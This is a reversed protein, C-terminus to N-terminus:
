FSSERIVDILSRERQGKYVSWPLLVGFVLLIPFVLLMPWIVFKYKLFWLGGVLARLATLSFISGIVFSATITFLAYYIGELVLMKVIQKKTMGIAEMMAFEKQRTVMGTLISNIFNLIGIVAIVLTMLGGVLVILGIMGKYDDLWLEKSEYNMLPEVTETYDKLFQCFEKEKDDEVDCAYSMLFSDSVWEKFINASTYYAFRAGMRDTLGYYNEKIVSLVEVKKKTGDPLVLTLKDGAHHMVEKEYVFDNDDVRTSSLIYGGTALKKRIVDIDDEGEWVDVIDLTFDELGYFATDYATDNIKWYVEKDSGFIECYEGNENRPIYDPAEYTEADLGVQSRAGYIRGGKEFGDQSECAEIFSESLKVTDIEEEPVYSYNYNYYEANAIHVDSSAFKKLYVDMDFSNTVTFISNLLVVALSLSTIIIVTRKKSRGINSLAMRGLKGGDTTKKQKKKKQRAGGDTYRVAEIPSVKTAIKAPKRISIFVTLLSFVAAGLFIVPNMTVVVGNDGYSSIQLVMPVIWKGIFFGVILGAPIGMLSLRLAQRRLLRRVQAGTTGITKLLGYYRIDKMVSIQFVNYIILYGTLLILLLGGVAGIVTFPDKEGGDSIYAWNANSAIYDADGKTVSYGSETIVKDIKEQISWSNSLIVDMRITGTNSGNEKYTNVLEKAYVRQYEKSVIAFGVNMGGSAKAVGSVIFTREVTETDENKIRLNLTVKQGAKPEKGLLEMSTEDLLIEDAEKPARGDIIELFCHPYWEKPYYWMELHRKLFEPNEVWDAVLMCPASEKVLKHKSLKEYQEKTINKIVGHSDGGSQRMTQRQFNEMTGIGITFLSTFMMATLAIAIAAILNRTKNAKFSKDSLNKIVRKNKVKRM